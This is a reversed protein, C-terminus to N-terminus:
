PADSCHSSLLGCACPGERDASVAPKQTDGTLRSRPWPPMLFGRGNPVRRCGSSSQLLRRFDPGMPRHISLSFHKPSLTDRPGESSHTQQGTVRPGVGSM